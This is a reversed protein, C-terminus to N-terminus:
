IKGVTDTARFENHFGFRNKLRDVLAPRRRVRCAMAAVVRYITIYKNKEYLYSIGISAM